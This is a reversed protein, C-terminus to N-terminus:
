AVEGFLSMKKTGSDSPAQVPPTSKPEKKKAPEKKKSKSSSSGGYYPKPVFTDDKDKDADADPDNFYEEAWQYCLDDPVDEVFAGMPKEGNMELEQKTFEEAKKYIHKFCNRLSKQPHYVMRAFAPDELCKTQIVETVCMKMNRRTLRELDSGTRQVSAGVVDDDAMDLLDRLAKEFAAKKEAQKAEWEAKRKAEAAEHEAKKKDVSDEPQEPEAKLESDGDDASPDFPTIESQEGQAANMEPFIGM